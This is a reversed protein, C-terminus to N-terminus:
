IDFSWSEQHGQAVMAPTTTVVAGVVLVQTTEELLAQHRNVAPPQVVEGPTQTEAVRVAGVLAVQVLMAAQLM